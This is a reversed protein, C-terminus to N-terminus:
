LENILQRKHKSNWEKSEPDYLKIVRAPNGAVVSYAPVNKTVVSGAAVIAHRGIHTGATVVVNAGIWAEDEIVIEATSVAQQSIPQRVNEFGHNLGSLVVHQALMVDKGIRLPGILVSSIGVLTRDGIYVPGVQNNITSFDEILVDKGIDFPNFPMVDLRTRRRIVSGSGRKHVFPNWFWKVWARPRHQNRPRLLRLAFRKLAKNSKIKDTISM